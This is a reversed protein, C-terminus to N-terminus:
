QVDGLRSVILVQHFGEEADPYQRILWRSASTCHSAVEEVSLPEQWIIFVILVSCILTVLRAQDGM